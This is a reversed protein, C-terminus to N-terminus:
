PAILMSVHHLISDLHLHPLNVIHMLTKEEVVPMWAAPLGIFLSDVWSSLGVMSDFSADTDKKRGHREAAGDCPLCVVKVLGDPPKQQEKQTLLAANTENVLVKAPHSLVRQSPKFFNGRDRGSRGM